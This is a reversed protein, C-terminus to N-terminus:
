TGSKGGTQVFALRLPLSQGGSTGAINIAIGDMLGTGTFLASGRTVTVTGRAIGFCTGPALNSGFVDASGNTMKLPGVTPNFLFGNACSNDAGKCSFERSYITPSVRAAGSVGAAGARGLASRWNARMVPDPDYNAALTLWASVYSSD